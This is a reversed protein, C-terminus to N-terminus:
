LRTISYGQEKAWLPNLEIEEHCPMCASLFWRKDYILTGIRGKMHHITTANKKRCIRCKPDDSLHEKRAKYYLKNERDRIISVGRIRKRKKKPTPKPKPYAKLKFGMSYINGLRETLSRVSQRFEM